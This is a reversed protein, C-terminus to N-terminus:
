EYVFIPANNSSHSSEICAECKHKSVNHYKYTNNKSLFISLIKKQKRESRYSCLNSFPTSMKTAVGPRRSSKISLAFIERLFTLYKAKSSASRINSMPKSRCIRFTTSCIPIGGGPTLCVISKLAVNGFSIWTQERFGKM